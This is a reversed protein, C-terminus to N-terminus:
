KLFLYHHAPTGDPMVTVKFWNDKSIKGADEMGAPIEDFLEVIRGKIADAFGMATAGDEHGFYDFDTMWEDGPMLQVLRVNEADINTAYFKPSDVVGNLPESFTIFLPDTAAANEAGVIGKASIAMILGNEINKSGDTPNSILYKGASYSGDNVSVSDEDIEMQAIVLGGQLGKLNNNELQHYRPLYDYITAM